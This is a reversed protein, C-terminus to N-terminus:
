QHPFREMPYDPLVGWSSSRCSFRRVAPRDPPPGGVITRTVAGPTWASPPVDPVDQAAAVTACPVAVAALAAVLATVTGSALVRLTLRRSSRHLM